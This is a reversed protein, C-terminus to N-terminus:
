GQRAKARKGREMRQQINEYMDELAVAHLYSILQNFRFDDAKQNVAELGVGYKKLEQTLVMLHSPVRSLRDLDYVVVVDIDGSKVLERLKILERRELSIGPCVEGFQYAVEYGQGKGYALCSELQAELTAVEKGQSEMGIRCYTAATRM